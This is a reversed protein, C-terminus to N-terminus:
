AAHEVCTRAAPNARLREISINEGNGECVGFTGEEMKELARVVDKHRSELEEVISTNSSLEEIQDAVENPDIAPTEMDGSTGQWDGSEDVIRGRGGLEAELKVKEAELAARLVAIDESPISNMDAHYCVASEPAV